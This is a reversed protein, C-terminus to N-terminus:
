FIVRKIDDRIQLNENINKITESKSMNFNAKQACEELNELISLKTEFSKVSSSFNHLLNQNKLKMEPM